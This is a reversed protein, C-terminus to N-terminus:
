GDASAGLTPFDKDAGLQTHLYRHKFQSRATVSRAMKERDCKALYGKALIRVQLPGLRDSKRKSDYEINEAMLAQDLKQGLQSRCNENDLNDFACEDVNLQYFPPDDWQPCLVLDYCPDTKGMQQAVSGIAQVVNHETLKEGVISSIRSGKNLFSIVPASGVYADVKVVDSINYRFFGSPTTLIIYYEKGIELEHALLAPGSFNEIEDVPIFEYFNHYFDLLGGPTDDTIPVTMRGESALLGIDRLAVQGYLQRLQPVYLGMTGGLWCCIVSVKWYDRPLLGEAPCIKELHKALAPNPKLRSEIKTRVDPPMQCNASLTGDRLDRILEESRPQISRAMNALTAPSATSMVGVDQEIAFRVAAYYRSPTDTIYGIHLPVAYHSRVLSNQMGVTLGSIAGCPVGAPSLSDDAPSTMQFAQRYWLEHHDAYLRSILLKWGRRYNNLFTTGIPIQKPKGTTGSTLAFMLLKERKGLLAQTNGHLVQDVYPRYTEYDTLPIQKAFEKYELPTTLGLDRAFQSTGNTNIMKALQALQIANARNAHKTLNGAYRTLYPLYAAALVDQLHKKVSM